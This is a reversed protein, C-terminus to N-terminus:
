LKHLAAIIEKATDSVKEVNGNVMYIATHPKTGFAPHGVVEHFSVVHEVNIYLPVQDTYSSCILIKM